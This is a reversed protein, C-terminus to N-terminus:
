LRRTGLGDLHRGGHESSSVQKERSVTAQTADGTDRNEENSVAGLGSVTAPAQRFRAGGPVTSTMIVGIM